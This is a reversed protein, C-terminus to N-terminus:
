ALTERRTAVFVTASSALLLGAVWISIASVPTPSFRDLTALHVFGLGCVNGVQNLVLGSVAPVFIVAFLNSTLVGVFCCVSAWFAGELGAFGGFILALSTGGQPFGRPAAAFVESSGFSPDTFRAFLGLVMVIGGTVAAAVITSAVLHSMTWRSRTVCRAMVQDAFGSSRDDALGTGSVVGVLLPLGLAMPILVLDRLLSWWAEQGGRGDRAGWLMAGLVVILTLVLVFLRRRRLFGAAQAAALRFLSPSLPIGAIAGGADGPRV